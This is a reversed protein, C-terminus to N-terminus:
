DASEMQALSRVKFQVSSRLFPVARMNHNMGHHLLDVSIERITSLKRNCAFSLKQKGAIYLSYLLYVPLNRLRTELM